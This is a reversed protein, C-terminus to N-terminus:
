VATREPSSTTGFLLSASEGAAPSKNLATDAVSRWWAAAEGCEQEDPPRILLFGSRPADARRTFQDQHNLIFELAQTIQMSDHGNWFRMGRRHAASTWTWYDCVLEQDNKAKAVWVRLYDPSTGSEGQYDVQASGAPTVKMLDGWALIVAFQVAKDFEMELGRKGRELREGHLPSSNLPM